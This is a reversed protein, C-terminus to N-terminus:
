PRPPAEVSIDLVDDDDDDKDDDEEAVYVDSPGVILVQRRHRCHEPVSRFKPHDKNPPCQWRIICCPMLIITSRRRAMLSLALISNWMLELNTREKAYALPTKKGNKDTSTAARPSVELLLRAVEITTKRCSGRTDTNAAPAWACCTCRPVVM